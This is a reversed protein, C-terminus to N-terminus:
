HGEVRRILLQLTGWVLVALALGLGLWLGSQVQSM